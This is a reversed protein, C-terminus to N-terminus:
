NSRFEVASSKAYNKEDEFRFYFPVFLGKREQAQDVLKTKDSLKLDCSSHKFMAAVADSFIQQKKSVLSDAKKSSRPFEWPLM